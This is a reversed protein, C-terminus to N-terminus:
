KNKPKTKPKPPPLNSYTLKILKILSEFNGPNEILFYNKAGPYPPATPIVSFIKQAEDTIKIFLLDDCILGITRDNFYLAYEGFMKKVAANGYPSLLSLIYDAFDPSTGM